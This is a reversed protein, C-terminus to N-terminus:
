GCADLDRWRAVEDRVEQAGGAGYEVTLTRNALEGCGADKEVADWSGRTYKYQLEARDEFPLSISWTSEDLRTMPTGAPDWGQFDGAIFLGDTPTTHPPVAVMFTVEVMRETAQLDLAESPPSTNFSTDQAAVAYAYPEGGVVTTDSYVPDTTAALVEFPGDM